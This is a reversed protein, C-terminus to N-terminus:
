RPASLEFTVTVTADIQVPGPEVPTPVASPEARSATEAFSMPHAGSGAEEVTLVRGVELGLARALTSAQGRADEAAARLATARPAAENAITFTLRQVTNAGNGLGADIARGAQSTDHLRVRVVNTVTYSEITRPGKAEGSPNPVAVYGVTSVETKQPLASRVARIVREIKAANDDGAAGATRAQSVVGLDIEALDPKVMVKAQGLVRLTGPQDAAPAVETGGAGLALLAGLMVLLRGGRRGDM